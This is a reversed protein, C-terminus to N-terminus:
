CEAALEQIGCTVLLKKQSEVRKKCCHCCLFSVLSVKRTENKKIKDM